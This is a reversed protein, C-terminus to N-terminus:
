TVLELPESLRLTFDMSPVWNQLGSGPNEMMEAVGLVSSSRMISLVPLTNCVTVRFLYYREELIRVFCSLLVPQSSQDIHYNAKGNMWGTRNKIRDAREECGYSGAFAAGSLMASLPM